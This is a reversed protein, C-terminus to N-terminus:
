FAQGISFHLANGRERGGNTFTRRDLKFGLDVRLPGVPSNYRIGFGVSGRLQGFDIDQVRAFVNGVDVFAVAGLTRWVPVRVEANFIVVANGGKPFGDPDITPDDGLRDLAFGRVTTGGGAFFRQSAPIEEVTEELPQGDPGLVPQGGEDTVPVTRPFGRAIGLRAGSALVLRRSWPLERYVFAQAFTKGYGVQSGIVRAALETEVGFIAGRAPDLQDDRTDHLLAVAAYSLRVRPFLRDILLKDEPSYKEDFLRTRDFTYNGSLSMREGFRRVLQAQVGRRSYSFSSRVAQEVVARVFADAAWNFARPERYTFLFRYESLRLGGRSDVPDRPRLSVRTFLDLSRNKGWLNRRGVEFFGRPAVEIREKATADIARVLRNSVEVGAGYGITTRPAEEVSVLVDRRGPESQRLDSIRVRRFLGMAQLRRQSEIMASFGLPRGPELVIERRITESSTHTNGVVILHDVLVQRGPAVDFTVDVLGDVPAGTRVGVTASLYGADLYRARLAERDAEVRRADYPQGAATELVARLGAEELATEGSFRVGGVVIRVGEDVAIRVDLLAPDAGTGSATEVAESALAM